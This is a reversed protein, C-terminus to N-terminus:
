MDLKLMKGARIDNFTGKDVAIKGEIIVYEIGNPKAAPNLYTGTEEITLPNIITIDAAKNEQILGRNPIKFIRAPFGTIKYIGEEISMLKEDLVYKKIFRPMAGFNRPHPKGGTTAGSYDRAYADTGICCYPSQMLLRLDDESIIYYIITAQVRSDVLVKLMAELETSNLEKAIQSISKGEYQSLNNAYGIFIKDYGCQLVINEWDERELDEEIKKINQPNKLIEFNNGFGESLVWQPLVASLDISGATYPYVDFNVDVGRKNAEEILKLCEKVKGHNKTGAAKLHSCHGKCGSKEAIEIVEQVSKVLENGENRMHSNYIGGFPAIIKCLEILEDTSAFQSPVYTLGTSM